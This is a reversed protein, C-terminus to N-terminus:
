WVHARREVKCRRQGQNPEPEGVATALRLEMRRLLVTELDLLTM